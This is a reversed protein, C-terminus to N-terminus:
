SIKLVETPIFINLFDDSKPKSKTGETEYGLDGAFFSVCTKGEPAKYESVVGKLGIRPTEVLGSLCARYETVDFDKFIEVKTGAKM